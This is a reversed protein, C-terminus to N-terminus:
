KCTARLCRSSSSQERTRNYRRQFTGVRSYNTSGQIHVGICYMYWIIKINHIALLMLNFKIIADSKVSGSIHVNNQYGYGQGDNCNTATYGGDPTRTISLPVSSIISGGEEFHYEYHIGKQSMILRSTSKECFM